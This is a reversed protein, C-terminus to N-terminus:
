GGGDDGPSVQVGSGHDGLALPCVSRAKNAACVHLAGQVQCFCARVCQMEAHHMAQRVQLPKLYQSLEEMADKVSPWWDGSQLSDRIFLDIFHRPGLIQMANPFLSGEDGLIGVPLTMGAVDTSQFWQRLCM